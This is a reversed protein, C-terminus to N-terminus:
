VVTDVENNLALKLSGLKGKATLVGGALDVTVGQPINVPLKGIRSM